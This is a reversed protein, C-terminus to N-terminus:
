PQIGLQEAAAAVHQLEAPSDAFIKQAREFSAQALAREGLVVRSRILKIWGDADRPAADLRSQLGDVMARIMATRDAPLMAAATQVDEATPGRETRAPPQGAYEQQLRGLIGGSSKTEPPEPKTAAAPLRATVDMGLDGALALIRSKLDDAWDDAGGADNLLGIWDDLAASKNGSQEKVLGLFFRARPDKPDLKLAAEFIVKADDNVRGNANRVMAEGHAARLAANSPDLGVAKAYAAAADGYRETGFYSWGLTRWGDADNPKAELRAVLRAIMDDVSGLGDAREVARPTAAVNQPRAPASALDPSGNIAYLTVSAITVFGAIVWVAFRRELRGLPRIAAPAQRAAALLRRKIETRAGEAQAGDIQGAGHEREVEDLQDRYVMQDNSSGAAQDWQRLFPAAMLVAAGSTMITLIIWLTM